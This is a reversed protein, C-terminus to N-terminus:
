VNSREVVFIFNVSIHKDCNSTCGHVIGLGTIERVLITNAPPSIRVLAMKISGDLWDPPLLGLPPGKPDMANVAFETVRVIAEAKARQWFSIIEKIENVVPSAGLGSTGSGEM